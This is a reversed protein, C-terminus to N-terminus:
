INLYMMLSEYRDKFDHEYNSSQFVAIVNYDFREFTSVIEKLDDRDIKLSVMINEPNPSNSVFTHLINAHNSEVLRSLETLSYDIAKFELVVVGGIQQIYRNESLFRVLSQASICGIYQRNIDTIPCIGINTLAKNKLINFIHEDPSVSNVPIIYKEILDNEDYADLLDGEKIIGVVENNLNTVPLALLLDRHIINLAEYVTQNDKLSPILQDILLNAFM